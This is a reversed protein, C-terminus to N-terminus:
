YHDSVGLAELGVFTLAGINVNHTYISPNERSGLNELLGHEIGHERFQQAASLSLLTEGCEMDCNLPRTPPASLFLATLTLVVILAATTSSLSPSLRMLTNRM